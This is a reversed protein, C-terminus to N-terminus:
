SHIQLRLSMAVPGAMVVMPDAAVSSSKVTFASAVVDAMAALWAYKQRM